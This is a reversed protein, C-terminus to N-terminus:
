LLAQLLESLCHPLPYLGPRTSVKIGNPSLVHGLYLMETRFFFCKLWKFTLNAQQLWYLVEHLDTLNTSHVIMGDLYATFCDLDGLVKVRLDQSQRPTNNCIGFSYQTLQYNGM